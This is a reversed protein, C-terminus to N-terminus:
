WGHLAVRTELDSDFTYGFKQSASYDASAYQFDALFTTTGTPVSCGRVPLPSFRSSIWDFYTFWRWKGVLYARSYHWELGDGRSFDFFAVDATVLGVETYEEMKGDIESINAITDALALAPKAEYTFMKVDDFRIIRVSQANMEATSNSISDAIASIRNCRWVKTGFSFAVSVLLGAFLILQKHLASCVLESFPTWNCANRGFCSEFWHRRHWFVFSFFLVFVAVAVGPLSQGVLMM